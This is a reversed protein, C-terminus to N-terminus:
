AVRALALRLLSEGGVLALRGRLGGLRLTPGGFREGFGGIPHAVRGPLLALAILLPLRLLLLARLVALVRTGGVARGALLGFAHRLRGVRAGLGTLGGLLGGLGSGLTVGEDLSQEVPLSAM